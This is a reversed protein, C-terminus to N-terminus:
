RNSRSADPLKSEEQWGVGLGDGVLGGLYVRLLTSVLM